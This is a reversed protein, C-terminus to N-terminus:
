SRYNDVSFQLTFTTYFIIVKNLLIICQMQQALEYTLVISFLILIKLIELYVQMLDSNRFLDKVWETGCQM